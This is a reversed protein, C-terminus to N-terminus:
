TVFGTPQGLSDVVTASVTSQSVGDALIESPSSFVLGSGPTVSIFITNSYNEISATIAMSGTRSGGYAMARAYGSADTLENQAQVSGMNTSFQVRVNNVVNSTDNGSYVKVLIRAAGGNAPISSLDSYILLKRTVTATNGGPGTSQECSFVVFMALLSFLMLWYLRARDNGSERRM